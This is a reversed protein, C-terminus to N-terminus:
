FVKLKEVIVSVLDPINNNGAVAEGTRLDLTLMVKSGVNGYTRSLLSKETLAVFM